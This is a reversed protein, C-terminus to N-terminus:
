MAVPLHKEKLLCINAERKYKVIKVTSLKRSKGM